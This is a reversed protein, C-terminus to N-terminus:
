FYVGPLPGVRAVSSPFVGWDLGSQALPFDERVGFRAHTQPLSLFGRLHMEHMDLNNERDPWTEGEQGM